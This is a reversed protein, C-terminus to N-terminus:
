LFQWLGITRLCGDCHLTNDVAGKKWGLIALPLAPSTVDLPPDCASAVAQIDSEALQYDGSPIFQISQLELSKMSEFRSVINRIVEEKRLVEPAITDLPTPNSKWICTNDHADIVAAKLHDACDRYIRVESPPPLHSSLYQKCSVCQLLD